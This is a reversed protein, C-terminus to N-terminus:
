DRGLWADVDPAGDPPLGRSEWKGTGVNFRRYSFDGGSTSIDWRDLGLMPAVLRMAWVYIASLLRRM